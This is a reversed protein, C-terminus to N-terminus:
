SRFDWRPGASQPDNEPNGYSISIVSIQNNDTIAEHLADVWGQSNFETFYMFINAGPAVSGVVCMDLMVEGTSDGNQDSAPTDPGPDNGPGQIVVDTISPTTGGLLKEFYTKLAPLKYGGRPDPSPPGNFAFIAVNQGSGNLTEPYDYLQAVQPPFFTGPWPNSLQASAKAAAGKAHSTPQAKLTEWLVPAM